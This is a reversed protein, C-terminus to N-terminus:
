QIKLEMPKKDESKFSKDYKELSNVSATGSLGPAVAETQGARPNLVSQAIENRVASGRDQEVATLGFLSWNACGALCLLVPLCWLVMRSNMKGKKSKM